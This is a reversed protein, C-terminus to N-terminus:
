APETGRPQSASGPSRQCCSFILWNPSPLLCPQAVRFWLWPLGELDWCRWRLAPPSPRRWGHGEVRVPLKSGAGPGPHLRCWASRAGRAPGASAAEVQDQMWCLRRPPLPGVPTAPPPLFLCRRWSRPSSSFAALPSRGLKMTKSVGCRVADLAKYEVMLDVGSEILVVRIWYSPRPCWSFQRSQESSSHCKATKVVLVLDLRIIPLGRTTWHSLGRVALATPGPNLGM